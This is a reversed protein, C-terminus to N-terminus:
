CNERGAYREAQWREVLWVVDADFKCVDGLFEDILVLEVLKGTVGPDVKFHATAHVTEGLYADKGVVEETVAKGFEVVVLCGGGRTEPAVLPVRDHKCENIVVKGDLVNTIGVQIMKALSELLVVFDRLFNVAGAKGTHCKFPVVAWNMGFARAVEGHWAIDEVDAGPVLMGHGGIALESRVFM